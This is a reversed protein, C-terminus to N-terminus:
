TAPAEHVQIASWTVRSHISDASEARLSGPLVQMWCGRIVATTRKFRVATGVVAGTRVHPIVSFAATVGSGDATVDEAARHLARWRNGSGYRFAFYDGQTIVFGAPLGSLSITSADTPLSAVVGADTFSGDPYAAPFAGPRPDWAEFLHRAGDLSELAAVLKAAETRTAMKATTVFDAVWLSEALTSVVTSGGATRSVEQQPQLRFSTGPGFRALDMIDTRPYTVPM